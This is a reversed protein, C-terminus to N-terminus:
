GFRWEPVRDQCRPCYRDNPAYGSGCSPCHRASDPRILVYAPAPAGFFLRNLHDLLDRLVPM